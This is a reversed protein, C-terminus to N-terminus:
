QRLVRLTAGIPLHDSVFSPGVVCDAGGLGASVLVHDIPIRLARPLESPWTPQWSGASAQRLGTAALMARFGVNWPTANHDGLVVRHPPLPALADAFRALAEDRALCQDRSGPRPPHVGLVGLPGHPTAVTARVAPALAFPLPLVADDVLPWRSFLAVGFYGPDAHVRRHPLEDLAATLRDLWEPTVESCFLVDPASAAITALAQESAAENGRLLNLALVTVTPADAPGKDPATFWDPVVAAAAALAFGALLLFSLRGGCLLALVACCLCWAGAQVPFCALLDLTWHSTAFWPAVAVPAAPLGLLLIVRRLRM